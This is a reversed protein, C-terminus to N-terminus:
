LGGGLGREVFGLAEIAHQRIVAGIAFETEDILLGILM